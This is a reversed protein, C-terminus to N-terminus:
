MGPPRNGSVAEACMVITVAFTAPTPRTAAQVGGILPSIGAAVTGFALTEDSGEPLGGGLVAVSVEGDLEDGAVCAGRWLADLLVERALLLPEDGGM